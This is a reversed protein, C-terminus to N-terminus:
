KEFEAPEDTLLQRNERDNAPLLVWLIFDTTLLLLLFFVYKSIIAWTAATSSEHAVAAAEQVEGVKSLKCVKSAQFDVQRLFLSLSISLSTGRM